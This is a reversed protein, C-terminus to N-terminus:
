LHRVSVSRAQMRDLLEIARNRNGGGLEARVM